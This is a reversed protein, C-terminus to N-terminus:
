ELDLGKIKAEIDELSFSEDSYPLPNAPVTSPPPLHEAPVFPRVPSNGRRRRHAERSSALRSGHVRLYTAAELAAVPVLGRYTLLANRLAENKEEQTSQNTPSLVAELVNHLGQLASYLDLAEATVLTLRETPLTRPATM